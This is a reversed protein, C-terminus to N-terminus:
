SGTGVHPSVVDTVGTGSSRVDEEPKHSLVCVHHVSMCVLLVCACTGVHMVCVHIQPQLSPEVTLLVSRSHSGAGMDPLECGDM